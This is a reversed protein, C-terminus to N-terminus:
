DADEEKKFQNWLDMISSASSEPQSPTCVSILKRRWQKSRRIPHVWYEHQPHQYTRLTASGGVNARPPVFDGNASTSPLLHLRPHVNAYNPSAPHMRRYKNAGSAHMEAISLHMCWSNRANPARIKELLLHLRRPHLMSRSADNCSTFVDESIDMATTRHPGNNSKSHSAHAGRDSSRLKSVHKPWEHVCAHRKHSICAGPAHM